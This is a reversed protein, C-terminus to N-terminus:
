RIRGRGPRTQQRARALLELKRRELNEEFVRFRAQQRVTLVQDLAEYAARIEAAARADHDTLARLQERLVADDPPPATQPNLLRRLEALLRNRAQLNRRRVQQLARLHSVFQPYQAQTLSLAQEAQVIALTDFMQLIQGANLEGDEAAREQQALPGREQASVPGAVLSLLFIVGISIRIV